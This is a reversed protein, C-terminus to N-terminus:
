IVGVADGELLGLKRAWRLDIAEAEDIAEVVADKLSGLAEVRKILRQAENGRALVEDIAALMAYTGNARMIGEVEGILRALAVRVPTERGYHIISADLSDKAVRRENERAVAMLHESPKGTKMRLHQIRAELLATIGLML